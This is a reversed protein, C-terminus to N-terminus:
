TAGASHAGGAAGVATLVLLAFSAELLVMLLIGSMPSPLALAKPPALSALVVLLAPSALALLPVLQVFGELPDRM